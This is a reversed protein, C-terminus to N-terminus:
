ISAARPASADARGAASSADVTASWERAGNRLTLELVVCGFGTDKTDFKVGGLGDDADNTKADQVHEEENRRHM